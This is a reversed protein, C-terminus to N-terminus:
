EGWQSSFDDFAMSMDGEVGTSMDVCRAGSKHAGDVNEFIRPFPTISQICYGLGCIQYVTEHSIPVFLCIQLKASKLVPPINTVAWSSQLANGFRYDAERLPKHSLSQSKRLRVSCPLVLYECRFPRSPSVHPGSPTGSTSIDRPLAEFLAHFIM